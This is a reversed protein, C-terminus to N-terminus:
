KNRWVLALLGTGLLILSSPEPVSSPVNGGGSYGLPSTFGAYTLPVGNDTNANDALQPIDQPIVNPEFSVDSFDMRPISDQPMEDGVFTMEPEIKSCAFAIKIEAEKRPLPKWTPHKFGWEKWKRLTEKSHKHPLSNFVVQCANPHAVVEAALTVSVGVVAIALRNM